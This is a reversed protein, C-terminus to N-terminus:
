VGAYKAVREGGEAEQGLRRRRGGYCKYKKAKENKMDNAKEEEKM